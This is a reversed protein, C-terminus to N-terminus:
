QEEGYIQVQRECSAARFGTKAPPLVGPEIYSLSASRAAAEQAADRTRQRVSLGFRM